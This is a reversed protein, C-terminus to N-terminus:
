SAKETRTSRAHQCEKIDDENERAGRSQDVLRNPRAVESEEDPVAGVRLHDDEHDEEAAHREAGQENASVRLAQFPGSNQYATTSSAVPTM